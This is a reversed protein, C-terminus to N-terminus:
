LSTTPLPKEDASHADATNMKRVCTAQRSQLLAHSPHGHCSQRTQEGVARAAHLGGSRLPQPLRADPQRVRRVGGPVEPLHRRLLLGAHGGCTPPKVMNVLICRAVLHYPIPVVVVLPMHQGPEQVPPPASESQTKRLLPIRHQRVQKNLYGFSNTLRRYYGPTNALDSRTVTSISPPYVHPMM